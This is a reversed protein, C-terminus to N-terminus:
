GGAAAILVDRYATMMGTQDYRRIRDGPLIPDDGAQALLAAAFAAPDDPAALTGYRGDDLIEVADGATTSAVIPLGADLAELLAISSGEWWSAIAFLRAAHLWAYVDDTVGAFLVRDAIGHDRARAHLTDRYAPDGSGLIVLRLPRVRNAHAVADILGEFNKQHHLRGIALVTPEVGMMADPVPSRGQGRRPIGNRILVVRGAAIGPAFARDDALNRGVVIARAAAAILVRSKVLRWRNRLPQGAREMPNSFVLVLPIGLGRSAAWLSVHGHNGGSLVMEPAVARISRRLAPVVGAQSVSAGATAAVFRAPAVDAATFHGAASGAILVADDGQEALFRALAIMARVVGSARMDHVYIAIRM